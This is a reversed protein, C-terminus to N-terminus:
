TWISDPNDQRLLLNILKSGLVIANRTPATGHVRIRDQDYTYSVEAGICNAERLTVGAPNDWGLTASSVLQKFREFDEPRLRAFLAERQDFLDPRLKTLACSLLEFGSLPITVLLAWFLLKRSYNLTM